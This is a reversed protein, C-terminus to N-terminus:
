AAEERAPTANVPEDFVWQFWVTSEVDWSNLSMSIDTGDRYWHLERAAAETLHVGAFGDEAMRGFDWGKDKLAVTDPYLPIGYRDLVADFGRWDNIVIVPTDSSPMLVWWESSDVSGFDEGRCWRVWDSGENPGLYTSTWFGGYPKFGYRAYGGREPHITTAPVWADVTPKRGIHLQPGLERAPRTSLQPRISASITVSLTGLTM